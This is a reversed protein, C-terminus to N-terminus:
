IGGGWFLGGNPAMVKDRFIYFDTRKPFSNIYDKFIVVYDNIKIKLSCFLEVVKLLVVNTRGLSLKSNEIHV